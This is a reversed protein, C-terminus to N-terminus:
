ELLGGAHECAVPKALAVRPEQVAGDVRQRQEAAEVRQIPLPRHPIDLPAPIVIPAKPAPDARLTMRRLTRAPKNKM